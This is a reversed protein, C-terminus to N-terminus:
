ESVAKASKDDPENVNEAAERSAMLARISEYATAPVGCGCMMQLGFGSGCFPCDFPGDNRKM